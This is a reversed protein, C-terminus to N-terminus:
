FPRYFRVKNHVDRTLYEVFGAYRGCGGSWDWVGCSRASGLFTQMEALSLQGNSDFRDAIQMMNAAAKQPDKLAEDYALQQLSVKLAASVFM